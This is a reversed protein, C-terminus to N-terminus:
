PNFAGHSSLKRYYARVVLGASLGLTLLLPMAPSVFVATLNMNTTTENVNFDYASGGYSAYQHAGALVGTTSDYSWRQNHDSQNSTMNYLYLDWVQHAKGGISQSHSGEVRYTSPSAYMGVCGITVISDITVATPIWYMTYCYYGSNPNSSNTVRDVIRDQEINPSFFPTGQVTISANLTVNVSNLGVISWKLGVIERQAITGNQYRTYYGSYDIYKGDAM